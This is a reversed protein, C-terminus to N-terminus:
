PMQRCQGMPFGQMSVSSSKVADVVCHLERPSPCHNRRSFSVDREQMLSFMGNIASPSYCLGSAMELRPVSGHQLNMGAIYQSPKPGRLRSDRQLCDLCAKGVKQCSKAQKKWAWCNMELNGVSRVNSRKSEAMGLGHLFFGLFSDLGKQLGSRWITFMCVKSWKKGAGWIGEWSSSQPTTVDGGKGGAPLPAPLAKASSWMCSRLLLNLASNWGVVSAILPFGLSCRRFM